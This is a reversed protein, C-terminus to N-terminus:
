CGSQTVGLIVIFLVSALAGFAFAPGRCCSRQSCSRRSPSSGDLAVAYSPRSYVKGTVVSTV